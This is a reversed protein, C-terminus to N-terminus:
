RRSRQLLLAAVALLPALSLAIRLSSAESIAGVLPGLGIAAGRMGANVWTLGSHAAVGPVEDARAYALPVVVACGLGAVVFGALTLPATPAWVAGLVGVSMAVLSIRLARDRGLAETFRDGLLRGAFQSGLLVALGTGAHAALVGHESALLVASWNMGLDEVAFGAVAVFALPLLLRWPRPPRVADRPEAGPARVPGPQPAPSTAGADPAAAQDAPVQEVPIQEVPIQEITDPLFWRGAVVMATSCIAGWVLLHVVLPVQAMAVGGLAGVAMGVSWGAHMATLVSRGYAAQVKLGQANQAVDVTADCAGVVALAVFLVWTQGVAVGLGGLVLALAITLTGFATTRRTGLRRVVVAPANLAIAGGIGTAVVLLGFLADTLDLDGKVQAWRALLAAPLAGNTAFAVTAAIRARRLSVGAGAAAKTTRRV